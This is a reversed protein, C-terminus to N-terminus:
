EDGKQNRRKFNGINLLYDPHKDSSKNKNKFILVDLKTGSPLSVTGKLYKEGTKSESAWLGTIKFLDAM